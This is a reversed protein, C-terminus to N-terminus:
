YDVVAIYAGGHQYTLERMLNAFKVGTNSMAFDLQVATPFGVASIIVPRKGNEDAPNLQDAARLVSDATGTFEDGFIFINMKMAPDNPDFLRKLAQLIGPVPNSESYVSYRRVARKIADRTEPADPLWQQDTSRALVFHGDADLVQIFKAQPYLDLTEEIKQVVVPWIRETTSDRMSGSTDIVFVIHTSPSIPMGVPTKPIPLILEPTKQRTSLDEKLRLIEAMLARHSVLRDKIQLELRSVALKLSEQQKRAEEVEINSRTATRQRDERRSRYQVLEALREKMIEQLRDRLDRLSTTQSGITLVFLLIIAGFGCCICDLFSLSFLTVPRRRIM